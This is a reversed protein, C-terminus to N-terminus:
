TEGLAQCATPEFREPLVARPLIGLVDVEWRGEAVGLVRVGVGSRGDVHGGRM